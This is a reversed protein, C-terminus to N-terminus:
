DDEFPKNDGFLKSIQDENLNKYIIDGMDNMISYITKDELEKELVCLKGVSTNKFKYIRTYENTFHM